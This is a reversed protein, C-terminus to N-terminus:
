WGPVFNSLTSIKFPGCPIPFDVSNALSAPAHNESLRVSVSMRSLDPGSFSCPYQIRSSPSSAPIFFVSTSVTFDKRELTSSM